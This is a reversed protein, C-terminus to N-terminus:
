GRVIAPYLPAAVSNAVVSAAIYNYDAGRNLMDVRYVTNGVANILARASANITQRGPGTIAVTPYIQYGDGNTPAILFPSDIVIYNGNANSFYDMITRFQGTATGTAMYINCGTYFGNATSSVSNGTVAYLFNNGTIRLDAAAFTGTLWNKYGYGTNSILVVDVAGSVASATVGSNAVLPFFRDTSFKTITAVPTSAMYKWLYGDSTRYSSDQSSIQSIDPAVVSNAGMNNDLCKWIHSFAGANVIAYYSDTTSTTDQDDYMAYATNQVWPINRVMLSADNASIKKACIMNRYASILMDNTDDFAQQILGGPVPMHNGLFMYYTNEPSNAIDTIIEYGVHVRYDNPVVNTAM